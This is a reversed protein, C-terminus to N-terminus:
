FTDSCYATARRFRAAAPEGTQDNDVFLALARIARDPPKGFAALYDDRLNRRETLWRGVRDDGSRVVVNREMDPLYPNAFMDGERGHAAWVYRLAPVRRPRAASGPDGFLVYLAAAVDDGARIHLDASPQVSEVMWQWELLPCTVPDLDVELLAASASHRAEGRISLGDDEVALRWHGRGVIPVLRWPTFLAEDASFLQRPLLDPQELGTADPAPPAHPTACAVLALLACGAGARVIPM